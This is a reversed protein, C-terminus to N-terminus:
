NIVKFAQDILLTMQEREGGSLVVEFGPWISV